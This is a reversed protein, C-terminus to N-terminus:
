DLVRTSKFLIEYAKAMFQLYVKVKVNNLLTVIENDTLRSSHQEILEAKGAGHEIVTTYKEWGDKTLGYMFDEDEDRGWDNVKRTRGPLSFFYVMEKKALGFAESKLEDYRDIVDERLNSILSLMKKSDM